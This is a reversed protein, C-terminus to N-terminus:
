SGMFFLTGFDHHLRFHTAAVGHEPETLISVSEQRSKRHVSETVHFLLDFLHLKAMQIFYPKIKGTQHGSDHDNLSEAGMHFLPRIQGEPQPARTLTQVTCGLGM